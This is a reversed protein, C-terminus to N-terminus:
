NLLNSDKSAIFSTNPTLLSAKAASLRDERAKQIAAIKARADASPRKTEAYIEADLKCEEELEEKHKNIRTEREKAFPAIIFPMSKKKVSQTFSSTLSDGM